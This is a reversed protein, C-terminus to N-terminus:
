AGADHLPFGLFLPRTCTRRKKKKKQGLNVGRLNGSLFAFCNSFLGGFGLYVVLFFFFFFGLVNIRRRIKM